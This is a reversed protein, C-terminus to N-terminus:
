CLIHWGWGWGMGLEMRMEMEMGTGMGVGGGNGDGDGAGDDIYPDNLLKNSQWVRCLEIIPIDYSGTEPLM